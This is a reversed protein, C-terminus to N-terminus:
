CSHTGAAGGWALSGWMMAETPIGKEARKDLEFRLLSLNQAHLWKSLCGSWWSALPGSDAQNGQSMSNVPPDGKTVAFWATPGRAVNRCLNTWKTIQLSCNLGLKSAWFCLAVEAALQM